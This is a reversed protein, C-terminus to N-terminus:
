KGKSVPDKMAHHCFKPCIPQLNSAMISQVFAYIDDMPIDTKLQLAEVIISCVYATTDEEPHALLVKRMESAVSRPNVGSGSPHNISGVIAAERHSAETAIISWV